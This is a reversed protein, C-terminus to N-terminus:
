PPVWYINIFCTILTVCCQAPITSLHPPSKKDFDDFHKPVVVGVPVVWVFVQKNSSRLQLAEFVFPFYLHFYFMSSLCRQLLFLFSFVVFHFSFAIPQRLITSASFSIKSAFFVKKKQVFNECNPRFKQARSPTGECPIPRITPLFYYGFQGFNINVLNCPRITVLTDKKTLVGDSMQIPLLTVLNPLIEGSQCFKM